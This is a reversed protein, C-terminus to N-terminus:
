GADIKNGECFEAPGLKVVENLNPFSSAMHHFCKVFLEMAQSSAAAEAVEAPGALAAVPAAAPAAEEVGPPAGPCGILEELTSIRQLLSGAAASGLCCVELHGVRAVLAGTAASGVVEELRAVRDPLTAMAVSHQSACCHSSFFMLFFEESSCPLPHVTWRAIAILM